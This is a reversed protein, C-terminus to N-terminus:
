PSIRRLVIWLLESGPEREGERRREQASHGILSTAPLMDFAFRLQSQLHFRLRLHLQLQLRLVSCWECGNKLTELQRGEPSLRTKTIEHTLDTQHEGSIDMVDLSLVTFTLTPTLTSAEAPDAAPTSECSWTSASLCERYCPVRPFTIDMDIVLKEGRSRDVEISPELHIRRYDIFELMMSTLIISFSIFTVSSTIMLM